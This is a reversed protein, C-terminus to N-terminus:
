LSSFRSTSNLSHLSSILKISSTKKFSPKSTELSKTTSSLSPKSASKSSNRFSSFLHSKTSSHSTQVISPSHVATSAGTSSGMVNKTRSISPRHSSVAHRVRSSPTESSHISSRHNVSPLSSQMSHLSSPSVASKTPRPSTRRSTAGEPTRSSSKLVTSSNSPHLTMQSTSFRAPSSQHSKSARSLTSLTKNTVLGHRKLVGIHNTSAVYCGQDQVSPCRTQAAALRGHLLLIFSCFLFNAISVMTAVTM